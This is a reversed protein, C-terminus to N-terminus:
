SYREALVSELAAVVRPDFQTGAGARLEALAVTRELAPRYSRDSTMASWADCVSVIRATLPIEEGALGDPYGAGDWHEHSSRVIHGIEGLLGGVTDLMQEGVITHTHMLALEEADLKGPKNVLEAPMKVKGVDHLLAALEAQRRAHPDLGLHDAVAAVLEVVDRSHSGTYADDAEIVEGLLMATGRYAHSLELAHDLRHQREQAFVKLLGVLPLVAFIGWIRGGSAIAVALGVPSLAMDVRVPLRMARAHAAPEINWWIRSWAANPLFDATVQAAFAGAYIGADRWHPQRAHALSLVLAPALSYFAGVLYIPIQNLPRRGRVFSPGQGLLLGAAVLLPVDRAPLLFLMPVLLPQTALFGGNGVEFVVRSVGAYAAVAIIAALPSFGRLPPAFAAVAAAAVLFAGALSYGAARHSLDRRTSTRATEVLETASLDLTVQGAAVADVGM